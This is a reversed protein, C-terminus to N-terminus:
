RRCAMSRAACTRLSAMCISACKVKPFSCRRGMLQLVVGGGFDLRVEVQGSRMPLGGLDVFSAAEIGAVARTALKKGSEPRSKTRWRHLSALSVREQQCFVEGPLGSADFKEVMATWADASLRRRKMTQM